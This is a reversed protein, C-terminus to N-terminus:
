LPLRFQLPFFVQREPNEAKLRRAKLKPRRDENALIEHDYWFPRARKPLYRGAPIVSEAHYRDITRLDCGYRRSLDKRWLIVPAPKTTPPM